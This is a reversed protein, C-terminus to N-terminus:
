PPPPAFRRDPWPRPPPEPFRDFRDFVDIGRAELGRADDYRITIVRIPTNSAREFRVERVPRFRTEGYETGLNGDRDSEPFARSSPSKASQEPVRRPRRGRAPPPTRESREFEREEFPAVTRRVRESFFAVGIVGVNLPTGMRSSYSDEPDSFRFTAVDDLSQRFGEISVRGFAPVVYGRQRFSAPAGSLVDRGDVSVVAEVRRGSPNEVILVYREGVEGLVWTGGGHRFTPFPEGFGNEVRLSFRAVPRIRPRQSQQAVAVGVLLVVIAVLMVIIYRLRGPSM